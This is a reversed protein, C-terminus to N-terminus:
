LSVLSVLKQYASRIETLYLSFEEGSGLWRRWRDDSLPSAAAIPNAELNLSLALADALNIIESIDIHDSSTSSLKHHQEFSHHEAVAASITDPLHWHRCLASGIAAHNFGFIKEEAETSQLSGDDLLARVAAYDAPYTAMLALKGVDHLIGTLFLQNSNLRNKRAITSACIGVAMGHRFLRQVEITDVLGPFRETKMLTAIVIMKLNSFGIVIVADHITHVLNSLGFFPSNAIQLVKAVLGQDKAIAQVVKDIDSEDDSLYALVTSTTSPLNPLQQVAAIAQQFTHRM